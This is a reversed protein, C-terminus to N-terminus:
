LIDKGDKGYTNKKYRLLHVALLSVSLGINPIVKEPKDIAELILEVARRLYYDPSSDGMRIIGSLQESLYTSPRLISLLETQKYPQKKM